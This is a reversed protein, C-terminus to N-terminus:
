PLYGKVLRWGTNCLFRVASEPIVTDERHEEGLVGVFVVPALYSLGEGHVLRYELLGEPSVYSTIFILDDGIRAIIAGDEPETASEVQLM